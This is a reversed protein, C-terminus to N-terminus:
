DNLTWDEYSVGEIQGDQPSDAFLVDKNDCVLFMVQPILYAKKDLTKHM